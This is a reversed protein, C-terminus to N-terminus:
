TWQEKNLTMLKPELVHMQNKNLITNAVLTLPGSYMDSRLYALLCYIYVYAYVKCKELATLPVIINDM